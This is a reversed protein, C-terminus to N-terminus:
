WFHIITYNGSDGFNKKVFAFFGRKHHGGHRGGHHVSHEENPENSGNKHHGHDFRHRGFGRFTENKNMM